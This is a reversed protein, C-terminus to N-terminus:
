TRPNEDPIPRSASPNRSFLRDIDDDGLSGRLPESLEVLNAAEVAATPLRAAYSEIASGEAAAQLALAEKVEPAIDSTITTPEGKRRGGRGRRV